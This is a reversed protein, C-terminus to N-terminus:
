DARPTLDGHEDYQAEVWKGKKPILIKQDWNTNKIMKIKKSPRPLTSCNKDFTGDTYFVDFLLMADEETYIRAGEADRVTRTGPQPGALRM